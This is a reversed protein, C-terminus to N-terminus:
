SPDCAKGTPWPTWAVWLNLAGAGSQEPPSVPELLPMLSHCGGSAVDEPGQLRPLSSHPSGPLPTQNLQYPTVLWLPNEDLCCIAGFPSYFASFGTALELGAGLPRCLM